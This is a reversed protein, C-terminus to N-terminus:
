SRRWTKLFAAGSGGGQIHTILSSGFVAADICGRLPEIQAPSELGFGLALPQHFIDRAQGLRALLETSGTATAGTTGLVSVFYVFGRAKDAYRKMRERPTNLGVLRILDLDHETLLHDPESSEELPLDPVIVGALGLGAAERALRSWGYQMFPNVYGMLVIEANIEARHKPLERFLWGLSVGRALCEQSVEEVVPGDAVPDSFPIGIEIVDAGARDLGKLEEFFRHTDPFGAPLFPILGIRGQEKAKQLRKELRSEQTM